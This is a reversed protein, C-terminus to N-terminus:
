GETTRPLPAPLRLSIYREGISNMHRDLQSKFGNVSKAQVATEPLRNWADVVRQSFFYKRADLRSREKFLKESHGRTRDSRKIFFTEWSIDEMGKMIKFVEILDGRLRRCELTTLNARKLQEEYTMDGFGRILKLARKQVNEM